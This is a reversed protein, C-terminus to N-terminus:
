RGMEKMVMLRKAAALVRDQRDAEDQVNLMADIYRYGPPSSPYPVVRAPQAPQREVAEHAIPSRGRDGPAVRNERVIEQIMGSPVARAMDNVWEPINSMEAEKRPSENGM